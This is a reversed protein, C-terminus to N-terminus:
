QCYHRLGDTGLYTRSGRDYSRYRASCKADWAQDEKRARDAQVRSGVIVAGLAFGIIGALAASSSDDHRYQYGRRQEYRRSWQDRESSHRQWEGSDVWRGNYYYQGGSKQAPAKRGVGSSQGPQALVSGAFMLAVM